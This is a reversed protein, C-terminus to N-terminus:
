HSTRDRIGLGATSHALVHLTEPLTTLTLASEGTQEFPSTFDLNLLPCGALMVLSGVPLLPLVANM